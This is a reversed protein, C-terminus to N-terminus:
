IEDFKLIKAECEDIYSEIGIISSMLSVIILLGIFFLFIISFKNIVVFSFLLALINYIIHIIVPVKLTGTKKYMYCLFLSFTFAPVLHWLTKHGLAFLVSVIIASAKFNYKTNLLKLLYGRYLLEEFLPAICVSYFVFSPVVNTQVNSKMIVYKGILQTALFLIGFNFMDYKDVRENKNLKEDKFKPFLIIIGILAVIITPIIPDPFDLKNLQYGVLHPFFTIALAQLILM